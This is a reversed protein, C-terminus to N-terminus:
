WKRLIKRKAIVLRISERNERNKVSNVRQTPSHNYPNEEGIMILLPSLKAM